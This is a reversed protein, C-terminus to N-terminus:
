PKAATATSQRVILEVSILTNEVTEGNLISMLNEVARRGIQEPDQRITTMPPSAFAMTRFDDFACVSVEEPVRIQHRHLMQLTSLGLYGSATILATPAKRGRFLCQFLEDQENRDELWPSRSTYIWSPSIDLGRQDMIRCYANLRRHIYYAEFRSAIFAIRTHGLERLHDVLLEVGQRDDSRVSPFVTGDSGLIVARVDNEHLREIVPQVDVTSAFLICGDAKSAWQMPDAGSEIVHLRSKWGFEELRSCISEYVAIGHYNHGDERRPVTNTIVAITKIDSRNARDTVFTGMGKVIRVLGAEALNVYAQRVTHYNVDIERILKPMAPLQDGPRLINKSILDSFHMEIQHYLPIAAQRDIRVRDQSTTTMKNMKDIRM